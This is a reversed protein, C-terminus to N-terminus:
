EPLSTNFQSVDKIANAYRIGIPEDGRVRVAWYYLDANPAIGCNNGVLISSVAPGHMSYPEDDLIQLKKYYVLRDAYEDHNVLLKQDIISVLTTFVLVVTILM